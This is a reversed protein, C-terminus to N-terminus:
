EFPIAYYIISHNNDPIYEEGYLVLDVGYTHRLDSNMLWSSYIYNVTNNLESPLGRHSFMAYRAAPVEMVVM